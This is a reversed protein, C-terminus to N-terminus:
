GKEQDRPVSSGFARGVVFGALLGIAAFLGVNVYLNAMTDLGLHDTVFSFLRWLAYNAPGILGVELGFLLRRFVLGVMLGAVPLGLALMLFLAEAQEVTILEKM